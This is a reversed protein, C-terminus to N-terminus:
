HRGRRHGGLFVSISVRVAVVPQAAHWSNLTVADRESSGELLMEGGGAREAPLIFSLPPLGPTDLM